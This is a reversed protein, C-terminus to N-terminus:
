QMSVSKEDVGSMKRAQQDAGSKAGAADQRRNGRLTSSVVIAVIAMGSVVAMFVLFSRSVVQIADAGQAGFYVVSVCFVLVGIQFVLKNM